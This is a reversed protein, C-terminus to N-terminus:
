GQKKPKYRLALIGMYIFIVGLFAASKAPAFYAIYELGLGIIIMGVAFFRREKPNAPVRWPRNYPYGWSM